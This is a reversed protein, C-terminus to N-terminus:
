GYSVGARGDDHRALLGAAVIVCAFAVARLGGFAGGPLHEHFVIIGAAIPLASTLLSALGATAVATGRQFGAQLGAFAGGHSVLVMPVLVIGLGGHVAGKTAVDGAGYLVGAVIGFRAGSALRRGPVAAVLAAAAASATLWAVIGGLPLGQTGRTGGGLSVALLLLGAVALAVGALQIGSLRVGRARAFAALLAVGGASLAQVLSLPAFALAAVYLAWGGVGTAFGTLWRLDRFLTRLSRFPARLSLPPLGGAAQHQVVWGWNLATTSLLALALGITLSV